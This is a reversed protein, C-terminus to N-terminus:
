LLVHDVRTRVGARPGLLTRQSATLPGDVGGGGGGGVGGGGGQQLEVRQGEAGPRESEFVAVLVAAFGVQGGDVGLVTRQAGGGAGTQQRTVAAAAAAAKRIVVEDVGCVRLKQRLSRGGGGTVVRM